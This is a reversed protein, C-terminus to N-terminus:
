PDGNFTGIAADHEQDGCTDNIVLLLARVNIWVDWNHKTQLCWYLSIVEDGILM